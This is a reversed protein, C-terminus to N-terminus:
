ADLAADIAAVVLDRGKDTGHAYIDSTTSPLAHGIQASVAQLPAGGDLATTAYWHRLAHINVHEANHQRRYRGWMISVWDPGHPTAGTPDPRLAPFVWPSTTPISALHARQAALVIQARPSITITHAKGGKPVDRIWVGGGPRELVSHKILLRDSDWGDWRLGVVEGRRMGTLAILRVAQAWQVHPEAPLGALLQRVLEVDPVEIDPRPVRPLRVKQTVIRDLQDLDFGFKLIARLVRHIHMVLQPSAGSDRLEGYWRQVDMATLDQAQMRGFKAKIRNAHRQYAIMTSPSNNRYGEAMWDDVLQGISGATKAREAHEANATAQLQAVISHMKRRAAREGNATFVRSAQRPRGTLPHPDVYERVRWRNGGLHQLSAM